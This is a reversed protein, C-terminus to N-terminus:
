QILVNSGPGGDLQDLGLGGNLVDDGAGGFLVDDGDSGILVDDGNGGDFTLTPGGAPVFLAQIIDDGDLGFVHVSDAAEFNSVVIEAALGDIVLSGDRLSLTIADEGATGDIVVSDAVGDGAGNVGLDINVQAVGTGTLDHVRITDAGGLAALHINEVSDLDMTVVGVNRTVTAGSGNAQVDLEEAINAGNFVLTDSGDDGQVVDSADGPNWVFADDGAGLSAVDIGRGGTVVDNGNGGILSDAGDGGTITDNGEGGDITLHVLTSLGNGAVITDDGGAANIVINEVGTSEITFPAPVTRDVQVQGNDAAVVFSEAGNGGNVELTDVGDGGDVVDSGDGPNWVIRDDGSEGFLQDSGSGGTLRDNGDGGFLADDGGRGSLVDDGTQGFLQDAGSGGTLTDNGSGGFLSAAPLAGNTEDLTLVDNGARGFVEILQTTDVTPSGDNLHLVTGDLLINGAANRGIIVDNDNGTGFVQLLGNDADFSATADHGTKEATSSQTAVEDATPDNHNPNKIHKM